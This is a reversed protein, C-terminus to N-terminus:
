LFAPVENRLNRLFDALHTSTLTGATGQQCLTRPYHTGAPATDQPLLVMHAIGPGTSLPPLYCFCSPQHLNFSSSSQPFALSACTTVSALTISLADLPFSSSIYARWKDHRLEHRLRNAELGRAWVLRSWMLKGAKGWGWCLVFAQM